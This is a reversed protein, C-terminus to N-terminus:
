SELGPLVLSPYRTKAQPPHHPRCLHFQLPVCEHPHSFGHGGACLSAHTGAQQPHHRPPDHGRAGVLNATVLTELFHVAQHIAKTNMDQVIMIVRLDPENWNHALPFTRNITVTEGPTTLTFAENPLMDVVMNHQDHLGDQCLFFLVQNDGSLAMDVDIQLTLEIDTGGVLVYSSTMLLPSATAMQSQVTPNYTYYMSGSPAGGVFDTTGGIMVSPTAGFGYWSARANGQDTSYPEGFYFTMGLFQSDGYVAELDNIGRM